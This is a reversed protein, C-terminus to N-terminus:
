IHNFTIPIHPLRMDPYNGLTPIRLVHKLSYNGTVKPLPNNGEQLLNKEEMTLDEINQATRRNQSAGLHSYLDLPNKFILYLKSNETADWNGNM